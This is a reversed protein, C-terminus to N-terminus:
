GIKVIEKASQEILQGLICIQDDGRVMALEEAFITKEAMTRIDVFLHEFYGQDLAHNWLSLCPRGEPVKRRSCPPNNPTSFPPNGASNRTCRQDDLIGPQCNGASPAANGAYARYRRPPAPASHPSHGV